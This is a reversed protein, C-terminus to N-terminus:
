ATGGTVAGQGAARPRTIPVLAPALHTAVGSIGHRAPLVGSRRTGGGLELIRDHPRFGAIAAALSMRRVRESIKNRGEVDDYSPASIDYGRAVHKYFEKGPEFRPWEQKSRTM